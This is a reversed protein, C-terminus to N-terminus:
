VPPPDTSLWSGSPRDGLEARLWARAVTWSRRVSRESSGLLQAIEPNTLGGFFRYQVIRSGEPNFVALRELAEDLAVLEDAQTDSMPPNGPVLELLGDLPLHTAGGGRKQARHHKAHDILIRRMAQSALAFFHQRSQWAGPDQDALRLWAEHVLATTNLTHGEREGRLRAHALSNLEAYAVAMLRDFAATDGGAAQQLLVTVEGASDPLPTTEM